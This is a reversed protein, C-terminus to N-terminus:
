GEAHGWLMWWSCGIAAVIHASSPSTGGENPLSSVSVRRATNFLARARRLQVATACLRLTATCPPDCWPLRTRRESPREGAWPPPDLHGRWIIVRIEELEDDTMLTVTAHENILAAPVCWERYPKEDEIVEFDGLDVDDPFEVRLVQDGTPGENIDMPSDGLWVGTVEAMMYSGTNDRFGDSLIADAADTTHYCIM